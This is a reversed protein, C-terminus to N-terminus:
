FRYFAGASIKHSLKNTALLYEASYEVKFMRNFKLGAKGHAIFSGKKEPFVFIAYGAGAKLYFGYIEFGLDMYFNFYADKTGDPNSFPYVMGATPSFNFAGIFKEYGATLGYFEKFQPIPADYTFYVVSYSDIKKKEKKSEKALRKQIEKEVNAKATQLENIYDDPAIYDSVISCLEGTQVDTVRVKVYYMEEVESFSGYCIYDVGAVKGIEKATDEDIIGSSQLNLETLINDLKTREVIKIRGTSFSAEMLADTVYEEIDRFEVDSSLTVFAFSHKSNKSEVDVIKEAITEFSSVIDEAFVSFTWFASILILTFIKKM